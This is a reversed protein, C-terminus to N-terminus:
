SHHKANNDDLPNENDYNGPPDYECVILMGKTPDQCHQLACGLRASDKWVIQTFHGCDEGPPATCQLNKFDYWKSENFWSYVADSPTWHLKLGWFINEGYPLNSHVDMCDKYRQMVYQKAASELKEDWTFSPLKFLLRVWNHAILFEQKHLYKLLDCSPGCGKIVKMPDWGFMKAHESIEGIIGLPLSTPPPPKAPMTVPTKPTAPLSPTVPTFPLAPIPVAVPKKPAAPTAPTGQHAGPRPLMPRRYHYRHHGGHRHGGHRNRIHFPQGSVDHALFLIFIAAILQNPYM